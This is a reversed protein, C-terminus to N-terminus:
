APEDGRVPAPRRPQTVTVFERLLRRAGRPTWARGVWFWLDSAPDDNFRELTWADWRWRPARTVRTAAVAMM